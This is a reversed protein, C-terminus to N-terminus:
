EQMGQAHAAGDDRARLRRRRHRPWADLARDIAHMSRAHAGRRAAAAARLRRSGAAPIASDRPHGIGLRLRWFDPTGLQAAIDRLGNHGAIGGGFKMKAEGPALDLEDHVVLIEDPAIRSSARWRRSRRSRSLNMFTMPKCCGCTARSKRSTPRSVQTEHAFAAGLRSALADVFWFGANHRTSAYERGPNGLGAVLRIPTAMSITELFFLGGVAAGDVPGSSGHMAPGTSAAASSRRRTRAGSKRRAAKAEKAPRRRSRRSREPAPRRQQAAERRPRQRKRPKAAAKPVVATAVVPDVKGRTVVRCAPPLKVGSVHLSHATDLESLDVEIFEPLDKPLCSIDIETMVHSVIAGQAKVAPSLEDNVFHLPVKM